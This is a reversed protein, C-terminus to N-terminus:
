SARRRALAALFFLLVPVGAWSPGSAGRVACGGDDDDAGSGGGAGNGAGGGAGSGSSSAGADPPAASTVVTFPADKKSDSQGVVVVIFDGGVVAPLPAAATVDAVGNAMPVVLAANRTPDTDLSVTRVPAGYSAYFYMGYKANVEGASAGVEAGLPLLEVMPYDAADPYGGEGARDGTAANWAGFLLLEAGITSQQRAALAKDSAELVTGDGAALEEFVARITDSGFRTDLYVPWVATGYLFSAVAGGPPSDISRNIQSFYGPLFAELDTLEPYISKAAWQASGEAFWSETGAQDYAAQVLHFLEHPVITKMAEEDDAYGGSFANKVLIFGACQDANATTDCVDSPAAGDAGPFDVLYIDLRGDGGNSACAGHDADSRPALFGMAAYGALADEAARGAHVVADPVGDELTSVADPADEGSATYWVRVGGEPTDWSLPEVGDFGMGLYPSPDTPRNKTCTDARAASAATVIGLLAATVSLVRLPSM